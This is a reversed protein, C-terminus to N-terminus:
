CPIVAGAKRGSFPRRCTHCCGSLQSTFRTADPGGGRIDAVIKAVVEGKPKAGQPGGHHLRVSVNGAEMGKGGIILMTHVRPPEADTSKAKFPASIRM